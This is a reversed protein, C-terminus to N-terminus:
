CFVAKEKYYKRLFRGTREDVEGFCYVSGAGCLLLESILSNNGLLESKTLERYNEDYAKGAKLYAKGENESVIYDIFGELEYKGFDTPIYALVEQWRRRLESLRFNYVGDISCNEFAGLRRSAYRKDEKYDASVLASYLLFREEKTLLPLALRSKFFEYKYGVVLIDSIHENALQRMQALWSENGRCVLCFGDREELLEFDSKASGLSSKLRSYLYQIYLNSHSKVANQAVTLKEM